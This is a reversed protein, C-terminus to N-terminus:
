SGTNLFNLQEPLSELTLHYTGERISFIPSEGQYHSVEGEEGEELSFVTWQGPILLKQRHNLFFPFNDGYPLYLILTDRSLEVELQRDDLWLTFSLEKIMQPLRPQFHPLDEKETLRLIELVKM